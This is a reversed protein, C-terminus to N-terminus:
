KYYIDEKEFNDQETNGFEFRIGKQVIEGLTLNKNHVEYLKTFSSLIKIKQYITLDKFNENLDDVIKDLLAILEKKRPGKNKAGRPRGSPNGSQGAKFRSM